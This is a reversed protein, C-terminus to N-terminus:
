VHVIPMENKIEAQPRWLKYAVADEVTAFKLHSLVYGSQNWRRGSPVYEAHIGHDLLTQRFKIQDENIYRKVITFYEVIRVM